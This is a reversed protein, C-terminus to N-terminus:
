WSGGAGGGGFSGGGGSFGGGSSGGGGGWGGGGSWGGGLWGGGSIPWCGGASYGRRSYAVGNLSRTLRLLLALVVLVAIAIFLVVGPSIGENQDAVTRGTGKYEGKTAALIADVAASLGGEFDGNRFHPKLENEIIQKALADPLAGELGYGVQLYMKRDQAFVFLVAGNKQQKQGVKWAQAVRVTYDEISSESQMHAYVAVLIQNSRRASSIRSSRTSARPPTPPPSGPMTTSIFRRRRRFSKRPASGWGASRSFFSFVCSDAPADPLRRRPRRSRWDLSMDPDTETWGHNEEPCLGILAERGCPPCCDQQLRVKGPATKGLRADCCLLAARQFRLLGAYFVAPFSKVATNYSQVTENFRGREVSIRNETGELQAQLAVFNANAKLEPYREVVVLLRSLASSLQGQVRDFEALKAPDTPASNPDLKVQGVSARAATIETLTSKEFNAAGSVTAVLNPILDARRQYVNQVQAWQADVGQGLRVLQNYSGGMAVVLILVGLGLAALIGCGIVTKKM